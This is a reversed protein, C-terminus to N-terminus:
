AEVRALLEDLVRAFEDVKVPKSLHRYFGAGEVRAADRVMAAASLGIVPILGFVRLLGPAGAFALTRLLEGADARTQSEPLVRTGISYMLLAWAVWGILAGATHTVLSLLDPGELDLLGLGGALGALLVIAIAQATSATDAEVEEYIGPDLRLAGIVRTAFTTM